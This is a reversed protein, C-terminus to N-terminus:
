LQHTGGLPRARHELEGVARTDLEGLAGLEAEAPAPVSGDELELAAAQDDLGGLLAAAMEVDVGTVAPHRDDPRDERDVVAGLARANRHDLAFHVDALAGLQRDEEGSLLERGAMAEGGDRHRVLDGPAAVRHAIALAQRSQLAEAVLEVERERRLRRAVRRAEEVEHRGAGADVDRQGIERLRESSGPLEHLLPHALIRHESLPPVLVERVGRVLGLDRLRDALELAEAALEARLDDDRDIDGLGVATRSRGSVARKEEGLDGIRGAERRQEVLLDGAQVSERRRRRGAPVTRLRTQAPDGIRRALGRGLVLEEDPQGAVQESAEGEAAGSAAIWASSAVPALVKTPM